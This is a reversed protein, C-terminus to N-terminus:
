NSTVPFCFRQLQLILRDQSSKWKIQSIKSVLTKRACHHNPCHLLFTATIEIDQGCSSMPSVCDHFRYWFQHDGWHCRLRTLLKLEKTDHINYNSNPEPRIFKLLKKKFVNISSFNRIYVGGRNWERIVALFFYDKFFNHRIRFSTIKNSQSSRTTYVNNNPSILQFLYPSIKWSFNQLIIIIKKVM